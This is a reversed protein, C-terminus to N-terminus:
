KKDKKDKKEKNRKFKIKGDNEEVRKEKSVIHGSEALVVDYNTLNQSIVMQYYMEKDPTEIKAAEEIKYTNLIVGFQKALSDKVEKPLDSATIYADTELWKGEQDFLATMQTKLFTFDVAYNDYDMQWAPKEAKSYKNKFASTVDLPVNDASIKQAIMQNGILFAISIFLIKKM